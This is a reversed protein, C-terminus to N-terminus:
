LALQSRNTTNLLTTTRSSLGQGRPEELVLKYPRTRTRTRTLRLDKVVVSSYAAHALSRQSRDDFVVRRQNDIIKTAAHLVNFKGTRDSYM